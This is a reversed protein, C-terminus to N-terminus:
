FENPKALRTAKKRSIHLLKAVAKKTYIRKDTNACRMAVFRQVLMRTGYDRSERKSIQKRSRFM